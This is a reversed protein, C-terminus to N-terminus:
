TAGFARTPLACRVCSTVRRRACAGAGRGSGCPSGHGIGQSGSWGCGGARLLAVRGSGRALGLGRRGGWATTM